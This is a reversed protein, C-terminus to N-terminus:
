KTRTITISPAKKPAAFSGKPAYAVVLKNKGKKLSSGKVTITVKGNKLTGTGVKKKGLTLTVKGGPKASGSAAKVTITVKSRGSANALTKPSASAKVSTGVKAAKVKANFEYYSSGLATHGGGSANAGFNTPLYAVDVTQQGSVGAPLTVTAKGGALNVTTHFSAASAHGPTAPPAVVVQVSGQPTAGGTATVEVHVAGGSYFATTTTAAGEDVGNSAFANITDETNANAVGCHGTTAGTTLPWFGADAIDAQATANTCVWGTNSFLNELV